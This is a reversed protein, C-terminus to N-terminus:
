KKTKDSQFFGMISKQGIIQKKAVKSPPKLTDAFEQYRPTVRMRTWKMKIDNVSRNNYLFTSQYKKHILDWNGLGYKKLGEVIAQEEEELWLTFQRKPSRPPIEGFRKKTKNSQNEDNHDTESEPFQQSYPVNEIEDDDEQINENNQENNLDNTTTEKEINPMNENIELDNKQQNALDTMIGEIVEQENTTTSTQSPTLSHQSCLPSRLRKQKFSPYKRDRIYDAYLDIIDTYKFNQLPLASVFENIEYDNM